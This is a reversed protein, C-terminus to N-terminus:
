QFHLPLLLIVPEIYTKPVLGSLNEQFTDLPKLQAQWWDPDSDDTIVLTDGAQISMEESTQAQYDYIATYIGKCNM